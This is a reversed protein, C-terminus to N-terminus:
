NMLILYSHIQNVSNSYEDPTEEIIEELQAFRYDMTTSFHRTIRENLGGMYMSGVNNITETTQSRVWFALYLFVAITISGLLISFLILITNKNKLNLNHM